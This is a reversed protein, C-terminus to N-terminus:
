AALRLPPPSAPQAIPDPSLLSTPVIVGYVERHRQERRYAHFRDWDGNEAVSRLRLLAEAGAITWRMGSRECRDKVLHRCAGEIVGTAIPWGLALYRDYALFPANREYYAASKELTERQGTTREPAGALRRLDAVVATVQGSLLRLARERVWGTREPATEGLLANAAKWLYEDGHIFDLVLTYTPFAEQVREQLAESGDTLVIRHTISATERREAAQRAFALAATKGELTAWLWKTGIPKHGTPGDPSRPEKGPIAPAFLSEIVAEPTRVRPAQTSVAVVVAEKKKGAKEGKGLRVRGATPAVMPVGKGDAQVVLLTAEPAAIPTPAQAYFSEVHEADAAIETKVSRSSTAVGFLDRLLTGVAHYAQDV